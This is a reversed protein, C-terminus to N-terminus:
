HQKGAGFTEVLAEYKETKRGLYLSSMLVRKVTGIKSDSDKHLHVYEYVIGDFSAVDYDGYTDGNQVGAAFKTWADGELAPKTEFSKGDTQVSFVQGPGKKADKSFVITQGQDAWGAHSFLGWFEVADSKAFLDIAKKQWEAQVRAADAPSSAAPTEIPKGDPDGTRDKAGKGLSLICGCSLLLVGMMTMSCFRVFSM